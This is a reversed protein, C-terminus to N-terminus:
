SLKAKTRATNLKAYYADKVERNSSVTLAYWQVILVFQFRTSLIRDSVEKSNLLVRKKSVMLVLGVSFEQTNEASKRSRLLM